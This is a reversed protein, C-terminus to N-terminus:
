SAAPRCAPTRPAAPSRIRMTRLEFLQRFEEGLLQDAIFGAVPNSPDVVGSGESGAHAPSSVAMCLAVAIAITTTARKARRWTVSARIRRSTGGAISKPQPSETLQPM